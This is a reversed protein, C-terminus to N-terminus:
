IAISTDYRSVNDSQSFRHERRIIRPDAMMTMEDTSVVTWCM